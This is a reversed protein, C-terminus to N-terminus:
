YMMCSGSAFYQSKKGWFYLKSSKAWKIKVMFGNGVKRQVKELGSISFFAVYCGFWLSGCSQTQTVVWRIQEPRLYISLKDYQNTKCVKKCPSQDKSFVSSQIPAPDSVTCHARPYKATRWLRLLHTPQPLANSTDTCARIRKMLCGACAGKSIPNSAMIWGPSCHNNKLLFLM